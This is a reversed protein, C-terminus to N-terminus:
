WSFRTRRPVADFHQDRSVIPFLTIAACRELGFTMRHFRHEARKLETRVAAYSLTTGEDVDLIRFKVLYEALWKEYGGLHARPASNGTRGCRIKRPSLGRRSDRSNDENNTPAGM